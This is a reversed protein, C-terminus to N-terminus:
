LFNKEAWVLGNTKQKCDNNDDFLDDCYHVFVKLLLFTRQRHIKNNLYEGICIRRLMNPGSVTM